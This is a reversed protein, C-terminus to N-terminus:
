NPNILDRTGRFIFYKPLFFIQTGWLIQTWFSYIQAKFLSRNPFWKIYQFIPQSTSIGIKESKDFDEASSGIYQVVQILRDFIPTDSIQWTGRYYLSGFFRERSERGIKEHKWIIVWEWSGELTGPTNWHFLNKKYFIKRHRHSYRYM